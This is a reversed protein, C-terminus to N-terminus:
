CMEHNHHGENQRWTPLGSESAEPIDYGKQDNASTCILSNYLVIADVIM